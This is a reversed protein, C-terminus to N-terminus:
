LRVACSRAKRRCRYGGHIHRFAEGRQVVIVGVAGHQGGHPRQEDGREVIREGSMM